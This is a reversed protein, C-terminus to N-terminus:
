GFMKSYKAKEAAKSAANKEKIRALEKKAGSNTPLLALAQKLDAVADDEDPQALARRYLTKSM